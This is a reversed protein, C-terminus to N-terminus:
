AISIAPLCRLTLPRTGAWTNDDCEGKSVREADDSIWRTVIADIDPRKRDAPMEKV